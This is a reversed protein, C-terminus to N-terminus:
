ALPVIKSARLKSDRTLLPVQHVLSTAAILEDAPDSSVDLRTSANAVELTIPWVHVERVALVFRSSALDIDLRGLQRLKAIEWFVIASIGWSNTNLLEEESPRLGGLLAYVFIHTDLNLM